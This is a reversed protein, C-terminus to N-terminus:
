EPYASAVKNAMSSFKSSMFHLISSHLVDEVIKVKLHIFDQCSLQSINFFNACGIAQNQDKSFSYFIKFEKSLKVDVVSVCFLASKFDILFTANRGNEILKNPEQTQDLNQRNYVAMNNSEALNLPKRYAREVLYVCVSGTPLVDIM